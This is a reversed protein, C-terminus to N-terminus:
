FRSRIPINYLMIVFRSVQKLYGAQGKWYLTAFFFCRGSRKGFEEVARRIRRKGFILVSVRIVEPGGGLPCFNFRVAAQLFVGRQRSSNGRM